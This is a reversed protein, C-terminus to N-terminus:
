KGERVQHLIRLAEAYGQAFGNNYDTSAQLSHNLAHTAEMRIRFFAEELKKGM